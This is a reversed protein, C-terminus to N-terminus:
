YLGYQEQKRRLEKNIDKIAEELSDRINEGSIVSRNWANGINRGAYYSGMFVPTEKIWKQEEMVVAREDALWPLNNFADLNASTWRAQIGIQAEIQRGFEVQTGTSMWWKLFKWAEEKRTSQSLIVAADISTGGVTRDITGDFKQTGPIQAIGWMGNLEPASGTLYTYFSFDGVGIPIEGTRFRTVFDASIPVGYSTYIECLEKFAKYAQPSDLASEHGGDKYFQGGNQYLFCDFIAAFYFQMG